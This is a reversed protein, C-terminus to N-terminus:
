ALKRRTWGLPAIIMLLIMLGAAAPYKIGYVLPTLALRM